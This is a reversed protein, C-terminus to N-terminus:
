CTFCSVTRSGGVREDDCPQQRALTIGCRDSPDPPLLLVTLVVVAIAVVSMRGLFSEGFFSVQQLDAFGYCAAFGLLHSGVAAGAHLVKHCQPGRCCYLVAENVLYLILFLTLSASVMTFPGLAILDIGIGRITVYALVAIFISLTTSLVQWTTLVVGPDGNNILYLLSMIFAVAGLLCLSYGLGEKSHHGHEKSHQDEGEHEDSHVSGDHQELSQASGTGQRANVLRVPRVHPVPREVPSLVPRVHVAM